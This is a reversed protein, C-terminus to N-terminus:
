LLDILNQNSSLKLSIYEVWWLPFDTESLGILVM